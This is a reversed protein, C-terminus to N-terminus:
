KKLVAMFQDFSYARVAARFWDQLLEPSEQQQISQVVDAPVAGPFRGELLELLSQRREILMGKAEGQSIWENVVPSETM